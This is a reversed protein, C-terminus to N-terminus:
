EMETLLETCSKSELWILFDVLDLNNQMVQQMKEPSEKGTLRGFDDFDTM